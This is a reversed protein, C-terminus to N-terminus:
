CNGGAVNLHPLALSLISSSISLSMWCDDDRARGLGVSLSLSLFGERCASLLVKLPALLVEELNLRYYGWAEKMEKNEGRLWDFAM